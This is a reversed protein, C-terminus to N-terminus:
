GASLTTSPGAAVGAGRMPGSGVGATRDAALRDKLHDGLRLALAMLLLTTTGAGATPFVSSGAIYLNDVGHVRCQPDVVGRREDESMRTTGIHHYHGRLGWDAEPRIRVSGLGLRETEAALIELSRRVHERDLAAVRWDMRAMPQGLRDCRSSLTIRSDPNPSPEASVRLTFPRGAPTPREEGGGFLKRAAFRVLVGRDDLINSLHYGLREPRRGRRLAGLLHKTSKYGHTGQPRKRAFEFFCRLLRERERVSAAVLVSNRVTHEGVPVWVAFYKERFGPERPTFSAASYSLHDMFFRGVRDHANGLGQPHARRSLLLLRANEIGGAALVVYRAKVSVRRGGPAAVSLHTVSRGHQDTVIELVAANTCLTINGSAEIAQIHDSSKFSTKQILELSIHEGKDFPNALTGGATSAWGDHSYDLSRLRCLDHAKAYHDAIEDLRLPWGSHPIAERREFDFPDFIRCFGGWCNTSGGLQRSRCQDLPFYPLGANEGRYLAQSDTSAEAPGAELVCVRERRGELALAVPIGAAGSGIIAVDTDIVTGDPLTAADMLM